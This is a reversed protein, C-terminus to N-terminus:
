LQESVLHAEPGARKRAASEWSIHCSPSSTSLANVATELFIIRKSFSRNFDSLAERDRPAGLTTMTHLGSPRSQLNHPILSVSMSMAIWVMGMFHPYGRDASPLFWPLTQQYQMRTHLARHLHLNVMATKSLSIPRVMSVLFSNMHNKSFQLCTKMLAPVWSMLTSQSAAARFTMVCFCRDNTEKSSGSSSNQGM